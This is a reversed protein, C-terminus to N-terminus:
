RRDNAAVERPPKLVALVEGALRSLRFANVRQDPDQNAGRGSKAIPGGGHNNPAM